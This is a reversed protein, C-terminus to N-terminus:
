GESELNFTAIDQNESASLEKSEESPKFKKFINVLKLCSQAARKLKRNKRLPM